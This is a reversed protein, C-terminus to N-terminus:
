WRLPKQWAEKLEALPLDVLLGAPAPDEDRFAWAIELRDSPSVEGICAISVNADQFVRELADRASPAVEALFRSPSESFLLAANWDQRALGAMDSHPVNFLQIRAGCGGAFAMEALAVALGGESLEHCARLLGRDI